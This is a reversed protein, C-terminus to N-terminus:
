YLSLIPIRSVLVYKDYTTNKGLIVGERIKLLLVFLTYLYLFFSYYFTIYLLIIYLLVSFIGHLPSSTMLIYFGISLNESSWGFSKTHLYNGLIDTLLRFMISFMQWFIFIPFKLDTTSYCLCWLCRWSISYIKFFVFFIKYNLQGSM